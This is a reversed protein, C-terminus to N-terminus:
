VMKPTIVIYFRGILSYPTYEWKNLNEIINEQCTTIKLMSIKYM